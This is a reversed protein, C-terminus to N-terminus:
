HPSLAFRGLFGRHRAARETALLLVLDLPQNGTRPDENAAFTNAKALLDNLLAALASLRRALERVLLASTRTTDGLHCAPPDTGHASMACGTPQHRITFSLTIRPKEIRLERKIKSNAVLILHPFSGWLTGSSVRETNERKVKGM